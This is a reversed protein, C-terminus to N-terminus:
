IWLYYYFRYNDIIFEMHKYNWHLKSNKLDITNQIKIALLVPNFLVCNIFSTAVNVFFMAIVYINAPLITRTLPSPLPLIFFVYASNMWEAIAHTVKRFSIQLKEQTKINIM